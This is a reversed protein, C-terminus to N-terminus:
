KRMMVEVKEMLMPITMDTKSCLTSARKVSLRVDNSGNGKGLGLEDMHVYLVFADSLPIAYHKLLLMAEIFLQIMHRNQVSDPIKDLPKQFFKATIGPHSDRGYRGTKLSVLVYTLHSTLCLLDVRTALNIDADWLFFESAIPVLNLTNSLYKLIRDGIQLERSDWEQAHLKQLCGCENNSEESFTLVGNTPLCEIKHYILQHIRKGKESASLGLAISSSSSTKPFQLSPPPPSAYISKIVRNGEETAIRNIIARCVGCVAITEMLHGKRVEVNFGAPKRDTISHVFGRNSSAFHELLNTRVCYIFRERDEISLGEHGEKWVCKCPVRIDLRKTVDPDKRAFTDALTWQKAGNDMAAM